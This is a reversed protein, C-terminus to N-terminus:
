DTQADNFATKAPANRSEHLWIIRGRYSNRASTARTLAFLKLYFCARPHQANHTWRRPGNKELNSFLESLYQPAAIHDLYILDFRQRYPMCILCLPGQKQVPLRM